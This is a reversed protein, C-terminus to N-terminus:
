ALMCHYRFQGLRIHVTSLFSKEMKKAILWAEQSSDPSRQSPNVKAKLIFMTKGPLLGLPSCQESMDLSSIILHMCKNGHYCSSRHIYELDVSSITAMNLRLDHWTLCTNGENTTLHPDDLRTLNVSVLMERLTDEKLIWTYHSWMRPLFQQQITLWTNNEIKRRTVWINLYTTVGVLRRRLNTSCWAIFPKHNLLLFIFLTSIECVNTGHTSNLHDPENLQRVLYICTCTHPWKLWAEKGWHHM